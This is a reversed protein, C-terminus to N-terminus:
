HAIEKDASAGPPNEKLYDLTENFDSGMEFPKPDEYTGAAKRDMAEKIKDATAPMMAIRVEVADYIANLIAVHGSSQFAESVGSGGFESYARETELSVVTFDDGDPISDAYGFGSGILTEYKKEDYYAESLAYGICHQMGGYGQGEFSLYNTVIGADTVVHMSVVGAKGTKVDVEIEAVFGACSQDPAMHGAGTFDNLEPNSAPQVFLGPFSTELGEAKMEDYTRYTGDNKKMAALMNKCADKTAQGLMFNCRSAAARGSDPCTGTDNMVLHIQEPKIGLPKLGEHVYAVCGIDAGQGMDEWTGYHTVSGDSNLELRVEARDGYNSINFAGMAVGVGYKKDDNTNKKAHEKLKDYLPKMNKMINEAVYVAPAQGNLHKDGERWVNLLRFDLPDIGAKRALMDIAQEQSTYLQAAVPCRYAVIHPMNTYTARSLARGNKVAYPTMFFKPPVNAAVAVGESYAGIGNLMDLEAATLKGKEDCSLRVTAYSESRKGTFKQHEDYELTLSVPRGDLALTAAGLLAPTGPSFAYGFSGGSPNEIIRIKEKPVGLAETIYAIPIYVSHTKMMIVLTGDEDVYAQATEPEIPLHPQMPTGISSEATYASKAMVERTDEGAYFPRQCFMNQIHDHIQEADERVAEVATISYPLEEYEVKVLRAAERAERRTGAAVLAVVDGSRFVKKDCLVPREKGDGPAWRLGIPFVIRNTGKVDKHTIVKIVGSAQEAESTDMSKITGHHVSSFVPALHIMGPVKAEIDAGFDTTGLVKGLATPKPYRTNFVQDKPVQMWMDEMTIEGRLVKAAEMVADVLPKYGTCRCANRNKTFWDRVDERSPSPNEDLLAKASVIFGPSCFGCQVGGYLIWALQLPHLNDKSGLGEITLVDSHEKVTKIKRVCSRVLVGDLIVNCAGCMGKGCGVKTGTLGMNRLVDALTDKDKDCLFSRETGNIKLVMRTYSM